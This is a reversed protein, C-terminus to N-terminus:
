RVWVRWGGRLRPREGAREREGDQLRLAKDTRLEAEILRLELQLQERRKELRAREEVSLRGGMVARWEGNIRDLKAARLYNV